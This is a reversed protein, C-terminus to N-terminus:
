PNCREKLENVLELSKLVEPLEIGFDVLCACEDVGVQKLKLVMEECKEITGLLSSRSFYREYANSLISHQDDKTFQNIDIANVKNKALNVHLDLNQKLYTYIPERVEEKVSALDEGIYTHIMLSVKFVEPQYGHKKLSERYITIKQGLEEPSQNILSTLINLGLEGAKYFSSESGASSLWLPLKQQIPKPYTKINMQKGTGTVVEIHEGSWLKYLTEISEYLIQKRDQYNSPNIAFDDPHWGPALALGIRGKSLNDVVAWDEAVRIPNHLPLVLSGARIQLRNTVMSLASGLLSPNPYLGGFTHFHREPTWVATFGKDDAYKACEILLQYLDSQESMADDAFFFISFDMTRMKAEEVSLFSSTGKRNAKSQGIKKQELKAEAQTKTELGKGKMKKELLKKQEPSLTALRRELDNM